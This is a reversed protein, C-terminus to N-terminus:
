QSNISQFRGLLDIADNNGLQTMYPNLVDQYKVLLIQTYYDLPSQVDEFKILNTRVSRELIGMHYFLRDFNERVYVGIHSLNNNNEISLSNRVEESGIEQEQDTKIQYIGPDWDIMRLANFAQPDSLMTDVLERALNAQKWRLEDKRQDTDAQLTLILAIASIIGGLIGVTKTAVDFKDKTLQNM